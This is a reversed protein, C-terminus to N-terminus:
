KTKSFLWDELSPYSGNGKFTIADDWIGHGAGNFTYFLTQTGGAETIARYMENTGAYPVSADNTGHFTYIPIDKFVSIKDRPGGGCIPVAAAFLDPYRSIIDWTGFGGMSLGIVYIRNEDVYDLKAYEKILKYTAALPNSIQVNSQLYNGNEWPTLVWKQNSEGTIPDSSPCQPAIIVSKAWNESNNVKLIANKLQSQNDTGREGAGHLFLILPVKEGDSVSVPQQVCYNLVYGNLNYFKQDFGTTSRITVESLTTENEANEDLFIKGCGCSYYKKNGYSAYGAKIAGIITLVHKHGEENSGTDTSPTDPNSCGCTFLAAIILILAISRSFIKKM